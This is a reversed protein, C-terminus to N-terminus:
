PLNRHALQGLPAHYLCIRKLPHTQTTASFSFSRGLLEQRSAPVPYSRAQKYASEVRRPDCDPYYHRNDVTPGPICSSGSGTFSLEHKRQRRSSTKSWRELRVPSGHDMSTSTPGRIITFKEHQSISEGARRVESESPPLTKEERRPSWQLLKGWFPSRHM